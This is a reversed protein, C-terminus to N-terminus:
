RRRRFDQPVKGSPVSWGWKGQRIATIKMLKTVANPHLSKEKEWTARVDRIWDLVDKATEREDPDKKSDNAIADSVEEGKDMLDEIEDPTLSKEHIYPSNSKSLFRATKEILTNM